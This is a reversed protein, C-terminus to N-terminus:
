FAGAGGGGGGVGGGGSSASSSSTNSAAVASDARNLQSYAYTGIPFYYMIPPVYGREYSSEPEVLQKEDMTKTGIGFIVARKQEDDLQDSLDAASVEPLRKRFADWQHQIGHGKVTKPAYLLGFLVLLLSPFVSFLLWMPQDYIGFIIMPPVLLFGILVSLIRVGKAGGKLDHGDIEEKISKEWASQLTNYKEVEQRVSLKDGELTNLDKYSFTEGDGFGDFLWEILLREHEHQTDRSIVRFAEEGQKEINGKRLLDLLATTQVQTSQVHPVAYRLTAPLSMVEEPVFYAEPYHLDAQMKRQRQLRLAYGGILLLLAVAGGVIYPAALGSLNHMKDYRAQATALNEKERKLEPRIEKDNAVAASGFLSAPYGVRVDANTGASVEGLKFVVNGEEDTKGVGRAANYGMAIVDDTAQPPRVTIMVNEFDTENRDDFFPWYFQAMDTYKEVGDVITYTLEIVVTEDKSKRHIKYSGDEGEIKLSKGNEEARLDRIDSGEKPYLDRSIGNFTGDFEYTFQEKVQVNGDNELQADIKFEKITFDDAFAPVPYALLLVFMVMSILVKKM